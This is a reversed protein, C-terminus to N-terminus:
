RSKLLCKMAQLSLKMKSQNEFLSIVSKVMNITWLLSTKHCGDVDVASNYNKDDCVNKEGEKSGRRISKNTEWEM